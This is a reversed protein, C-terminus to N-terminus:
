RGFDRGAAATSDVVIDRKKGLSKWTPAWKEKGSLLAKAQAALTERHEKPPAEVKRAFESQSLYRNSEQNYQEAADKTEKDWRCM